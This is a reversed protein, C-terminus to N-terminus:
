GGIPRIRRISSQTVIGDLPVDHAACPLSSVQQVDYALGVLLPRRYLRHRLRRAFYRDYYGRGMGIRNGRLDFGVLPVFVVDFELATRM